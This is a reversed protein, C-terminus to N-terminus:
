CYFEIKQAIDEREAVNVPDLREDTEADHWHKASQIYILRDVSHISADAFGIDVYRQGELYRLACKHLFLLRSGGSFFEHSRFKSLWNVMVHVLERFM